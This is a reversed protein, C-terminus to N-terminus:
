YVEKTSNAVEWLLAYMWLRASVKVAYDSGTKIINIWLKKVIGISSPHIRRGADEQHYVEEECCKELVELLKQNDGMKKLRTIQDM